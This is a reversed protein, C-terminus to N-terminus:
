QGSGVKSLDAAIQNGTAIIQDAKADLKDFRSVIQQLAGDEVIAKNARMLADELHRIALTQNPGAPTLRVLEEAIVRINVRLSNSAHLQEETMTHRAFMNDINLPM